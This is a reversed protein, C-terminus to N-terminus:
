LSIIISFDGHCFGESFGDFDPVFGSRVSDDGLGHLTVVGVRVPVGGVAGELTVLPEGFASPPHERHLGQGDGVFAAGALVLQPDCFLVFVAQFFEHLGDAGDIIFGKEDELDIVRSVDAVSDEGLDNRGIGRSVGLNVNQRVLVKFGDLSLEDGGGTDSVLCPGVPDVELHAVAVQQSLEQTGGVGTGSGVAAAELIPGTEEDLGRLGDLVRNGVGVEDQSRPDGEIFSDDASEAGRTGVLHRLVVRFGETRM